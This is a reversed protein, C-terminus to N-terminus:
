GRFSVVSHNGPFEHRRRDPAQSEGASKTFSKGEMLADFSDAVGRWEFSKLVYPVGDAFIPSDSGVMHFHLHPVDSSGSNGLRGLVQGTKVRDGVKVAISGPQLHAYLAYHASDLRLLVHNGTAADMSYSEKKATFPPLDPMGDRVQTVTANAAAMVNVGYGYYNTLQRWDGQFPRDKAGLKIWDVAYRQPVVPRGALPFWSLRHHSHNDLCNLAFWDGGRLQPAVSIPSGRRVPLEGEETIKEGAMNQFALHVKLPPSSPDPSSKRDFSLNVFLIARHGGEILRKNSVPVHRYIWKDLAPPDFTAVPQTSFPAAFFEVRNLELSNSRLNTLHLEFLFHRRGQALIPTPPTPVEIVIGPLSPSDAAIANLGLLLTFLLTASTRHGPKCFPIESV